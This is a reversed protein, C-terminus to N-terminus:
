CLFTEDYAEKNSFFDLQHADQSISHNTLSRTGDFESLTKQSTLCSGNRLKTGKLPTVRHLLLFPTLSGNIPCPPHAASFPVM